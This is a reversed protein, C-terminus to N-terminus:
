QRRRIEQIAQDALIALDPVRKAAAAVDELAGTGGVVGLGRVANERYLVNLRRLVDDVYGDRSLEVVRSSDEGRLENEALWARQQSYRTAAHYAASDRVSEPAGEALVSLLLPEVAPGLRAIAARFRAAEEAVGCQYSLLEFVQARVAPSLETARDQAQVILPLAITLILSFLAQQLKVVKEETPQFTVM